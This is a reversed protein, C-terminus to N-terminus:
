GDFVMVVAARKPGRVAERMFGARRYARRARYNAIAPDIAVRPAGNKRLARALLRLFATGHGRGIMAPVGIFTDIARSGPPLHAFYPVPWRHVAYHQAFAFPEGDHAVILMTMAPESLDATLSAEEFGPDGWWKQAAPTALWGRMMPLDAATM